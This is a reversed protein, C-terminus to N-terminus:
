LYGGTPERLRMAIDDFGVRSAILADGGHVFETFCHDREVRFGADVLKDVIESTSRGEREHIQVAISDVDALWELAGDFVEWESGEIDMKVFRTHQTVFDAMTVSHRVGDRTARAVNRNWEQGVLEHDGSVTTNYCVARYPTLNERLVEYNEEDMEVAIVRIQPQWTFWDVSAGGIYAGVDICVDGPCLIVPPRHSRDRLMASLVNIDIDDRVKMPALWTLEKLIM